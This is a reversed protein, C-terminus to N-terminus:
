KSSYKTNIMFFPLNWIAQLYRKDCSIQWGSSPYSNLSSCWMLFLINLAQFICRAQHERYPIVGWSITYWSIKIHLLLKFIGRTKWMFIQTRCISCTMIENWRSKTQFRSLIMKTCERMRQRKGNIPFCIDCKVAAIFPLVNRDKENHGTGIHACKMKWVKKPLIHVM